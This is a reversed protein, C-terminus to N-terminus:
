SVEVGKLIVKSITPETYAHIIYPLSPAYPKFIVFSAYKGPTISGFDDSLGMAAAGNITVANLAQEPLLKMKICALSMVFPM